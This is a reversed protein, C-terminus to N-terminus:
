TRRRIPPHDFGRGARGGKGGSLYVTGVTYSAPHSVLDTQVPAPFRAGFLSEIGPGDLPSRKAIGVSSGRDM